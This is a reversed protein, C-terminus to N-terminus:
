HGIVVGKERGDTRCPIELEKGSYHSNEIMSKFREVTLGGSVKGAHVFVTHYHYPIGKMNGFFMISTEGCSDPSNVPIHLEIMDAVKNTFAGSSEDRWADVIQVWVMGNMVHNKCLVVVNSETALKDYESNDFCGSFLIMIGALIGTWIAKKM